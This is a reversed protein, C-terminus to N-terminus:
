LLEYQRLHMRQIIDKCDNFVRRINETDVACTFHPYCYHKQKGAESSIKLFEDRIFFKARKVKETELNLNTVHWSTSSKSNSQSSPRQNSANSPDGAAPDYETHNQAQQQQQPEAVAAAGGGGGDPLQYDNFEPFYDELRQNEVDNNIKKACCTRSISFCFRASRGCGGIIGYRDSYSSHRACGTKHPIRAYCWITAVAPLWSYRLQSTTSASFGSAGSTASDVLM